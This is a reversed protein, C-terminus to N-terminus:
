SIILLFTSALVIFLGVLAYFLVLNYQVTSHLTNCYNDQFFPLVTSYYLANFPMVLNILMGSMIIQIPMILIIINILTVKFYKM